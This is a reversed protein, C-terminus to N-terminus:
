PDWSASEENDGEFSLAAFGGAPKGNAASKPVTKQVPKVAPASSEVPTSEGSAKKGKKKQPLAVTTWGSEDESQKMAIAMQQDESLKGSPFERETPEADTTSTAATSAEMGGTSSATSEADFTDLLPGNAHGNGNVTEGNQQASKSPTWASSTPAKSAGLGNKAPEGRAERAARRQKEELVKRDKEEAEREVRQQEKKQRNQRQKKTEVEEQKQQRVARQKEPQNSATLRLTSPGKAVPELMDSVDGANNAPTDSPLSDDDADAEDQSSTSSTVPTDQASGQKVTRQRQEKGKPASLNAGKRAKAMQEAFQRNSMEEKDDREPSQIVVAPTEQVPAPVKKPAKRKKSADKAGGHKAPQTDREVKKNRTEQELRKGPLGAISGRRPAKHQQSYYYYAALAGVVGSFGIWSQASQWADM